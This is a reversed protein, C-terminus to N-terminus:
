ATKFPNRLLYQKPKMRNTFFHMVFNVFPNRHKLYGSMPAETAGVTSKIEPATRGFHLLAIKNEIAFRIVDYLMRQYLSYEKNIAYDMGIYHVETKENLEFLTIFGVLKEDLFYGFLHYKDPLNKKQEVFYKDPLVALNFDVKDAVNHYLKIIQSSYNEIDALSLQRMEIASSVKEVKNARVRYKSSLSQLYDDYSHWSAPIHFEMDSEITLKNYQLNAFANSFVTDKQYLDALLMAKIYKKQKVVQNIIALVYYCKQENDVKPLFFIGKEGTMFLNGCVLMPIEVKQLAPRFCNIFSTYYQQFATEGEKHKPFYATLNEGHFNVVQFYCVGLLENKDYMLTYVFGMDKPQLKELMQLYSYQLLINNSPIFKNWVVEDIEQISDFIKVDIQRTLVCNTEFSKISCSIM